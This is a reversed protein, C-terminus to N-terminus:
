KKGKGGDEWNRETEVEIYNLGERGRTVFSFPMYPITMFYFFFLCLLVHSFLWVPFFLCDFFEIFKHPYLSVCTQLSLFGMLFQFGCYICLPDTLYLVFLCVFLPIGQTLMKLCLIELSILSNKEHGGM